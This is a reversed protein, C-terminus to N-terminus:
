LRVVVELRAGTFAPFDRCVGSICKLGGRTGGAFFRISSAPTINWQLAGNVYNQNVKASPRTSWEYGITAVLYPTWKLAFYADGETWTPYSLTGDSNVISVNDGQRFLAFGQAELSVGRPLAQAFEWEIHGIHQFEGNVATSECNPSASGCRETRYGGSPFFHSNGRNWRFEMGAYPDHYDVREGSIAGRDEFFAYSVFFLVWPKVRYDLRLRPGTVDYIPSVLETQIREATPPQNYAVPAFEVLRTDISPLWRQFTSYHKFELLLSAPGFYGTAAGYLAYGESRRDSQTALQGAGEVFLALWKTLRPADITAGYMLMSDQRLRNDIETKNQTQIGGVVHAGVLVRESVRYEARAGGIWDNPDPAYRGTASDANQINTGGFIQNPLGSILSVAVNDDHFVFRAGRLTTDIGFEDLKRLSLVLGRGYSVYFDGLTAEFKRSNYEIAIKELTFYTQCFKNYLPTPGTTPGCSGDPPSPYADTDYRTWL